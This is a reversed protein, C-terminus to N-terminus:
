FGFHNYLWKTIGNLWDISGDLQPVSLYRVVREKQEKQNQSTKEGTLEERTSTIVFGREPWVSYTNNFQNDITDVYLEPRFQFDSQFKRAALLRDALTKHQPFISFKGLPWQDSAHAEMVYVCVFRVLSPEYKDM